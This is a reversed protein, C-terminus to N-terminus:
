ATKLPGIRSRGWALGTVFVTREVSSRTTGGHYWNWWLEKIGLERMPRIYSANYEPSYLPLTRFVMGTREYVLHGDIWTRLLGDPEFTNDGPHVTNLKLETEVCYWRGAYLVSGLGGRQGWNNRAQSEGGYRYGPPNASQFDYLHWGLM